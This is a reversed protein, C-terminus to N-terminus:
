RVKLQAQTSKNGNAMFESPTSATHKKFAINFSSKSNFGVKQAIAEITLHRNAADSLLNCADKIRLNNLYNSYNEGTVDNIVKSLYTTNTNLKRALEGLTISSDLYLKQSHMLDNLDTWIKDQHHSTMVPKSAQDNKTPGSEAILEVKKNASHRQRFFNSLFGATIKENHNLYIIMLVVLLLAMVLNGYIFYRGKVTDLKSQLIERFHNENKESEYKLQMEALSQLNNIKNVSDKGATYHKYYDLAETDKGEAQYQESIALLNQLIIEQNNLKKAYALSKQYFNRAIAPKGTLSYYNGETNLLVAESLDDGTKVIVGIAEDLAKRASLADKERIHIEAINCLTFVAGQWDSIKLKLIYAEKLHVLARDYDNTSLYYQGINNLVYSIGKYNNVARFIKLAIQNYELSKEIFTHSSYIGAINSYLYGLSISDSTAEALKIAAIMVENAQSIMGADAYNIGVNILAGPTLVPDTQKDLLEVAVSLSSIFEQKKGLLKECEARRNYSIGAVYFDKSKLAFKAASDFRSLATKVDNRWLSVRGLNFWIMGLNKDNQTLEAISLAEHIVHDASDTRGTLILYSALHTLSQVLGESYNLDRSLKIAKEALIGARELTDHLRYGAILNQYDVASKGHSFALRSYAKDSRQKLTQLQATLTVLAVLLVIIVSKSATKIM